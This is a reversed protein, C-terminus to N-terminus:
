FFPHVLVSILYKNSSLGIRSQSIMERILRPEVFMFVVHWHACWTVRGSPFLRLESKSRQLAVDLLSIGLM